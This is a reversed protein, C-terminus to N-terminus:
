VYLSSVRIVALEPEINGTRYDSEIFIDTVDCVAEPENNQEPKNGIWVKVNSYDTIIRYGDQDNHYKMFHPKMPALARTETVASAGIIIM